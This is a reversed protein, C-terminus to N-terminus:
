GSWKYWKRPKPEIQERVMEIKKKKELKRIVTHSATLLSKANSKLEGRRRLDLLWDRIDSPSWEKDPFDKFFGTVADTLGIRKPSIITDSGVVNSKFPQQISHQQILRRVTVLDARLQELELEIRQEELQLDIKMSNM